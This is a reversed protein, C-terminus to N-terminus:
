EARLKPAIRWFLWPLYRYIYVLILEKGGVLVNRKKRELGRIIKKACREASMGEKQARDMKNHKEGTATLANKSINSQIRGPYIVSSHINQEIYELGLTEFYGAVAHKSASYSARLPFGFLGSISSVVSITGGGTELMWPLVAKTLEITGFYNTEFIKRDVDLPTESILSRQGIGGNNILIDIKPVNNRVDKVVEMISSIDTLDLQAVVASAGFLECQESVERLAEVNRGSLVVDYSKKALEIALAKGIGSGAGTIWVTKKINL